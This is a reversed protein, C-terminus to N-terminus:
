TNIGDIVVIVTIYLFSISYIYIHFNNEIHEKINLLRHCRHRSHCAIDLVGGHPYVHIVSLQNRFTSTM